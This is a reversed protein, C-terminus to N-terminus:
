GAPEAAQKACRFGAVPLRFTAPHHVRNAARLGAAGYNYAGGRLVRECEVPIPNKGTFGTLGRQRLEDQTALIEPCSGPKGTDARVRRYAYPDYEDAVWEWVNGALDYHGFPGRGDPYRKVAETALRGGFVGHRRADPAANGWVYRRGDDGRAAREWEAETPLRRGRFQCYAVADSWSVGVVPQEAGLFAEPHGYVLASGGLKAPAACAHAAVCEAYASQTVETEDLWFASVSVLHAPREDREGEDASGMLTRGAPVLLMGADSAAPAAPSPRTVVISTCAVVCAWLLANGYPEAFVISM